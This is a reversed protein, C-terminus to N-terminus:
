VINQVRVFIHQQQQAQTYEDSHMENAIPWM